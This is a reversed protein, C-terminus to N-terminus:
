YVEFDDPFAYAHPPPKFMPVRDRKRMRENMWVLLRGFHACDLTDLERGDSTAASKIDM